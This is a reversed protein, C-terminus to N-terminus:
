IILKEDTFEKFLITKKTMIIESNTKKAEAVINENKKQFYM